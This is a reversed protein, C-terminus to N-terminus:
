TTLYISALNLSESTYSPLFRIFRGSRSRPGDSGNTYLFPDVEVQTPGNVNHGLVIHYNSRLTMAVIREDNVYVREVILKVLEHQAETDGERARWHAAFNELLDAARELDDDPVPTLQELEHQLKLRKDIYDREDVIFGHDWRFDMREIAEHIEVLREELNKETM